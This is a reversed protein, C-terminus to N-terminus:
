RSNDGRTREQNTNEGTLLGAIRRRLTAFDEPDRTYDYPASVLSGLSLLEKAREQKDAPLTPLREELLKLYEYDEMGDRWNSLRISPWFTGGTGPYCLHGEGPRYPWGKMSWAREPWRPGDQPYSNDDGFLTAAWNLVGDMRFKYSILPIVRAAANANQVAWNPYPADIVNAGYWWVEKGKTRLFDADRLPTRDWLMCFADIDRYLLSQSPTPLMVGSAVFTRISPAVSKLFRAEKLVAGWGGAKQNNHPEDLLYFYLPNKWGLKAAHRTVLTLYESLLGVVRKDKSAEGLHLKTQGGIEGVFLAGDNRMAAAAVQDWSPSGPKPSRDLSLSGDPQLVPPVPTGSILGYTNLGQLTARYDAFFEIAALQLDKPIDDFSAHHFWAGRPYKGYNYFTAWNHSWACFFSKLSSKEPLTFDWVTVAMPLTTVVGAGDKVSIRGEYGGPPTAARTRVTLWVGQLRGEKITFQSNPILPDPWNGALREGPFQTTGGIDVEDVLRLEIDVSPIVGGQPGKLDGASVELRVEGDRNKPLFVLQRTEYENRAMEIRMGRESPDFPLDALTDTRRIKQLPSVSVANYNASADSEGGLITCWRGKLLDVDERTVTGALGAECDALLATAASNTLNSAMIRSRLGDLLAAEGGSGTLRVNDVLITQGVATKNGMWISITASDGFRVIENDALRIRVHITEGPKLRDHNVMLDQYKDAHMKFAAFDVDTVAHLDFELFEHRRFEELMVDRQIGFWPTGAPVNIQLSTKGDTAWASTLETTIGQQCQWDSLEAPDEFSNLFPKAAPTESALAGATLSAALLLGSFGGIWAAASGGRQVAAPPNSTNRPM